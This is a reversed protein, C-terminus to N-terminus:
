KKEVDASGGADLEELLKLRDQLHNLKGHVTQRSLNLDHAIDQVAWGQLRRGLIDGYVDDLGRMSREILDAVAVVEEPQPERNLQEALWPDGEAVERRADRMEALHYRTRAYVKRVTIRVLLRWLQDTDDIRFEGAASRRFFTRFVSQVVDEPTERAALVRSFKWEALRALRAAYLRFLEDVRRDAEARVPDTRDDGPPM